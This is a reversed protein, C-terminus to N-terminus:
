SQRGNVNGTGNQFEQEAKNTKLLQLTPKTALPKKHM